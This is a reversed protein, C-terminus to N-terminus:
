RWKRGNWRLVQHLCRCGNMGQWRRCLIPVFLITGAASVEHEWSSDDNGRTLNAVKWVSSRPTVVVRGSAYM